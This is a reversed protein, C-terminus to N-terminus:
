VGTGQGDSQAITNEGEDRTPRVFIFGNLALIAPNELLFPLQLKGIIEFIPLLLLQNSATRGMGEWPKCDDFLGRRADCM